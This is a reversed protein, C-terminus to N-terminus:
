KQVCISFFGICYIRKIMKFGLKTFARKSPINTDEIEVFVSKYGLPKYIKFVYKVESFIAGKGRYEPFTFCDYFYLESNKLTFHSFKFKSNAFFCFSAIDDNVISVVMFHKYNFRLRFSSAKGEGFYDIIKKRFKDEIEYYSNYIKHVFEAKVHSNDLDDMDLQKLDLLYHNIRRISVAKKFFTLLINWIKFLNM